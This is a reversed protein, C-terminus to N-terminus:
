GQCTTVSQACALNTVHELVGAMRGEVGIGALRQVHTTTMMMGRVSM